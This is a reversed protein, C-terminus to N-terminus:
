WTQGGERRTSRPGRPMPPLGRDYLDPEESLQDYPLQDYPESSDPSRRSSRQDDWRPSTQIPERPQDDLYPEPNGGGGPPSWSHPRSALSTPYSQSDRVSPYSERTYPEGPYPERSYSEGPYPESAYTEAPFSESPYSQPPYPESSYTDDRYSERPYPESGYPDRSHTDGPYPEPSYPEQNYPTRSDQRYPDDVYPERPHPPPPYPEGPYPEGPYQDRPYPEGPYPEGPYQDRTANGGPYPEGPYPDGPEPTPLGPSPPMAGTASSRYDDVSSGDDPSRHETEPALVPPEAIALEGPPLDYDDRPKEPPPERLQALFDETKMPAPMQSSEPDQDKQPSEFGPRVKEQDPAPPPPPTVVPHPPLASSTTAQFEQSSNTLEMYIDELSRQIPSLEHIEWGLRAAEIGIQEGSLGHVVLSGDDDLAAQRGSQTVADSIDQVQPSRVRTVVGSAQEVLDSIPSDKILRGRGIIIVHDAVQAMESMLHSSLFITRGESALKKVLTRVWAVGEPDLGNIPEDLILTQPDGLLATALGLRQTMGLSYGGARKRAVPTLGVMELVKDVRTKSVGHTAALARLHNRATRGPHIARSELLAGVEGMPSKMSQYARGNVRTRGRTPHDLGLIVRMTTSKGAGNPGLFGTVIGSRVSFSLSDVALKSGYKKTLDAVDIM